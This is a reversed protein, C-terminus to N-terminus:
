SWRLVDSRWITTLGETTFFRFLFFFFSFAEVIAVVAPLTLFPCRGPVTFSTQESITKERLYVIVQLTPMEDGGREARFLM